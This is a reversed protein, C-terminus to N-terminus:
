LLSWCFTKLFYFINDASLSQEKSFYGELQMYIGIVFRNSRKPRSILPSEKKKKLQDNCLGFFNNARLMDNDKM